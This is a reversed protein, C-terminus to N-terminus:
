YQLNYRVISVYFFFFFVRERNRYVYLVARGCGAVWKVIRNNFRTHIYM